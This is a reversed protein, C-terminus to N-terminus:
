APPFVGNIECDSLPATATFVVTWNQLIRATCSIENVTSSITTSQATTVPGNGKQSDTTTTQVQFTRTYVGVYEAGTGLVGAFM